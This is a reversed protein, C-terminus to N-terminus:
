ENHFQLNKTTESAFKVQQHDSLELVLLSLLAARLGESWSRVNEQFKEPPKLGLTLLHYERCFKAEEEEEQKRGGGGERGGTEEEM